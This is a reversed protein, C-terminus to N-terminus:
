KEKFCEENEYLGKLEDKFELPPGGIERDLADRGESDRIRHRRMQLRMWALWLALTVFTLPLTVAWYVWIQKSM